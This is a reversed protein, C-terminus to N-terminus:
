LAQRPEVTVRCLVDQEIAIDALEFQGITWANTALHGTPRAVTFTSIDSALALPLLLQDSLHKEVAAGSTHHEHLAAVAEDAVAESSKGIRGYASFDAGIREYEALLFIGAGPCPASVRRPQVDVSIGLDVLSARARDAM